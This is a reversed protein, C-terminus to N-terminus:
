SYYKGELRHVWESNKKTYCFKPFKGIDLYHKSETEYQGSFGMLFDYFIGYKNERSKCDDCVFDFVREFIDPASRALRLLAHGIYIHMDLQARISKASYIYQVNEHIYQVIEECEEKSYFEKDVIKKFKDYLARVDGADKLPFLNCEKCFDDFNVRPQQMFNRYQYELPFYMTEWHALYEMQDFINFCHSTSCCEFRMTSDITKDYTWAFWVDGCTKTLGCAKCFLTFRDWMNWGDQEFDNFDLKYSFRKGDESLATFGIAKCGDRCVEGPVLLAHAFVRKIEQNCINEM